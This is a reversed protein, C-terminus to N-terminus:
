KDKFWRWSTLKCSLRTALLTYINNLWLSMTELKSPLSDGDIFLGFRAPVSHDALLILPLWVNYGFEFTHKQKTVRSCLTFHQVIRSENQWRRSWMASFNSVCFCDGRRQCVQCLVRGEQSRQVGHHAAQHQAPWLLPCLPRLPFVCLFFLWSSLLSASSLVAKDLM